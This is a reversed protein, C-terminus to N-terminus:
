IQEEKPACLLRLLHTVNCAMDFRELVMQRGTTGLRNRLEPDDLLRALANALAASDQPPVLLGNVETSILEPIGSIPTSIVPLGMYLAEVLVNPIGDRDGNKSVICPLAVIAAQQYM